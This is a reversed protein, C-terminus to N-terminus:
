IKDGGWRKGLNRDEDVLIFRLSSLDKSRLEFKKYKRYFPLNYVCHFGDDIKYIFPM